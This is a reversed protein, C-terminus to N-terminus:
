LKFMKVSSELESALDTLGQVNDAVEQLAASQEETSAAVQETNAATNTSISQIESVNESMKDVNEKSEVVMANVKELYEKTQDFSKLIEHLSQGVLRVIEEGKESERNGEEISSLAKETKNQTSVILEKISSSSKMSEEALKRVEDAVVAFGKGAEGARAAEISANLALLNTQDAISDIIEVINGIEKSTEQLEYIVKSSYNVSNKITGMQNVMSDMKERGEVALKSTDGSFKVISKVQEGVASMNEVIKSMFNSIEDTAQVQKEAGEAVEETSSSIEESVAAAQQTSSLLTSSSSALNQSMDNIKNTMGKLNEIMNNFSLAVKGIEDQSKIEITKTLDGGAVDEAVSALKNLPNLNIRVVLRIIYGGILIALMSIITFSIAINKIAARQNELSIGIDTAGVIKGNEKVPIIIDYVEQGKYNYVSSYTKSENIAAKSGVDTLQVGIRNKDSHATVKLDRGMTLAYVINNGKGLRNVLSQSSVSSNLKEVENAIIGVQVIGGGKLAVAGYKYFNGDNSNVSKRINEIVKERKGKLVEQVPHNEGYKFNINVALNSYTIVGESNAIDIEQVGVQKAIEQLYENSINPNNGILYGITSIKDGLMTDIQKIIANNTQIESSIEEVLSIGDEKIQNQLKKSTINFSVFALIVTVVLLVIVSSITIKFKLSSSKPKNDKEM